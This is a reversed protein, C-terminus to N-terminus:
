APETPSTQPTKPSVYSLVAFVDEEQIQPYSKLLDQISAGQALKKQILEVSLRTRKIVPKGLLITHHSVIRNKYDM